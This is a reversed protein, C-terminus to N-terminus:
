RGAGRNRLAGLDVEHEYYMVSKYPESPKGPGKLEQTHRFLRVRVPPNGPLTDMELAVRQAFPGWAYMHGSDSAREFFKRFRERFYKVPIPLSYIRYYPYPRVSGDQFEVEANGWLDVSAPNPAFMDWSQWAGMSVTYYKLPSGQKLYQWNYFLIWDSGYPEVTGLMVPRRPNPLSWVTIAFVHFLVFLKVFISVSKKREM